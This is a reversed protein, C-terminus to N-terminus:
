PGWWMTEHFVAKGQVSVEFRIRTDPTSVVVSSTPDCPVYLARTFGSPGFWFASLGQKGVGYMVLARGEGVIVFALSAFRLEGFREPSPFDAGVDRLEILHARLYKYFTSYTPRVLSPLARPVLWTPWTMADTTPVEVYTRYRDALSAIPSSAGSESSRLLWSFPALEAEGAASRLRIRSEWLPRRVLWEGGHARVICEGVYAAAHVVVNFLENDPSGAAGSAAWAAIREPTWAASLRHISADSYDLDLERPANNSDHPILTAARAVFRAAADALHALITANDAPNADINRAHELDRAVDVPYLPLFYRRFLDGADKDHMERM